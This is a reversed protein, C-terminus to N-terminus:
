KESEMNLATHRRKLNSSWSVSSAMEGEKERLGCCVQMEMVGGGGANEGADDTSDYSNAGHAVSRLVKEGEGEGDCVGVTADEDSAAEAAM